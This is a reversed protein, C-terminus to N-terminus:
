LEMSIVTYLPKYKTGSKSTVNEMRKAWGRRGWIQINQCENERAFEEFISHVSQSTDWDAVFGGCTMIQLSKMNDFILFRTAFASTIKDEDVFAWVHMHGTMAQQFTQFTTIEGASHELAADIHPSINPWYTLIEEASLLHLSM